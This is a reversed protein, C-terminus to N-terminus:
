VGHYKLASLCFKCECIPLSSLWYSNEHNILETNHKFGYKKLLYIPMGKFLEIQKLDIRLSQAACPLNSISINLEEAWSQVMEWRLYPLFSHRLFVQWSHMAISVGFGSLFINCIVWIAIIFYKMLGSFHVNFCCLPTVSEMHRSMMLLAFWCPYGSIM